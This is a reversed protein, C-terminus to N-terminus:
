VSLTTRDIRFTLFVESGSVRASRYSMGSVLVPLELRTPGAILTTGDVELPALDDISIKPAPVGRSGIGTLLSEVISNSLRATGHGSRVRVRDLEGTLADVVSFSVEDLTVRVREVKIGTRDLERARVTIAEFRGGALELLFPFGEISVDPEEPLELPSAM